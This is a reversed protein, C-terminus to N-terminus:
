VFLADSTEESAQREVAIPISKSVAVRLSGGGALAVRVFKTADGAKLANAVDVMFVEAGDPDIRYEHRGYHLKAVAM